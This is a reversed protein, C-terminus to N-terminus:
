FCSICSELQLIRKHLSLIGASQSEMEATCICSDQLVEGGWTFDSDERGLFIIEIKKEEKEVLFMHTVGFLMVASVISFQSFQFLNSGNEERVPIREDCIRM